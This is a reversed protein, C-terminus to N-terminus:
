RSEDAARAERDRGVPVEGRPPRSRSRRPAAGGPPELCGRLGVAGLAPADVGRGPDSPRGVGTRRRPLQRHGDIMDEAQHVLARLEKVIRQKLDQRNEKAKSM